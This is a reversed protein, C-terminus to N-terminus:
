GDCYVFEEKKYNTILLEGNDKYEIYEPLIPIKGGGNPLDIIFSPIAYGSTFGRLNRIIEIGAQVSTRFHSSGLIQDCQYLYYPKVRVKLLEHFLKKLVVCDDNVGKLLVTQSGLPIGADALMNCAKISESTMENPHTFHLSLFLPHYKKLVNVLSPTIRQPLVAPVKSGIRIMEVHDIARVQGLIWDIEDDELTLPDGGSILVDRIEEHDKIYQIAKLLDDKSSHFCVNGGV